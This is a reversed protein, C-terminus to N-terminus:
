PLVTTIPRSCYDEQVADVLGDMWVAPLHQPYFPALALGVPFVVVSAAVMKLGHGFRCAPQRLPRGRVAAILLAPPSVITFLTGVLLTPPGREALRRSMDSGAVVTSLALGAMATIILWGARRRWARV